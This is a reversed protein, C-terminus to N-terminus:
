LAEVKTIIEKIEDFKLEEKKMRKGIREIADIYKNLIRMTGNSRSHIYKVIEKDVMVECLETLIKEADDMSLPKFEYFANCRDFYHANMRALKEKSREMGVLVFTVLSQDALDRITSLIKENSFGYDIEDIIIVSDFERYLIDLIQNYLENQTGRPEYYPMHKEVLKMLFGRLFDKGTINSELRMYVYGNDQATRSAWRTKGLGARGYLLGLGVNETKTRDILNRLVRNAGKVNDIEVLQRIKM